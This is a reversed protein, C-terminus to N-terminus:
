FHPEFVNPPFSCIFTSSLKSNWKQVRKIIRTVFPCILLFLRIALSNYNFCDSPKTNHSEPFKFCIASLMRGSSAVKQFITSQLWHFFTTVPPRNELKEMPGESQKWITGLELSGRQTWQRQMFLHSMLVVKSKMQLARAIIQRYLAILSGQWNLILVCCHCLSAASM